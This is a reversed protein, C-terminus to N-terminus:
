LIGVVHDETILQEYASISGQATGGDDLVYLKIKHGKIGGNANQENVAQQIGVLASKDIASLSSSLGLPVGIPIETSSSSGTAKSSSGCAALSISALVAAASALIQVRTSASPNM